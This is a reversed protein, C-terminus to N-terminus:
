DQSNILAEVQNELHDGLSKSLALKKLCLCGKFDQEVRQFERMKYTMTECNMVSKDRYYGPVYTLTQTETYKFMELERHSPPEFVM